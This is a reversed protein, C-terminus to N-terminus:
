RANGCYEFEAYDVLASVYGIRADVHPATRVFRLFRTPSSYHTMSRRNPRLIVSVSPLHLYCGGIVCFWWIVHSTVYEYNLHGM